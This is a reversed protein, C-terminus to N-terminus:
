GICFKDMEVSKSNNSDGNGKKATSIPNQMKTLFVVLIEYKIGM